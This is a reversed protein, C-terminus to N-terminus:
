LHTCNDVLIDNNAGTFSIDVHNACTAGLGGTVGGPNTGSCDRPGSFVNGMATLAAMASNPLPMCIGGGTNQGSGLAAQLTNKGPSAATGLDIKSVDVNLGNGIVAVGAGNNSLLYSSRLRVASGGTIVLGRGGENAWAVVGTLTNLPPNAGTQSIVIGNQQNGNAVVTGAGSTGPTGQISISSSGDVMIGSATNSNFAVQNPTPLIISVTGGVGNPSAVHLGNSRQTPLGNGTSSVGSGITLTGGAVLIGDGLFNVVDVDQLTTTATSGALVVVGNQATQSGGDLALNKLGSAAADLRFASTNAPPAVTVFNQGVITVNAPIIIPFTEGTKVVVAGALTTGGVVTITTGVVAGAGIFQLARTITKFSCSATPTGSGTAGTDSGNVPDVLYNKGTVTQCTSCTHGSSCVASNGLMNKCLMDGAVGPCCGGAGCAGGCCVDAPNAVCATNDTTTCAGAVCAGANAGATTCIFTSGYSAMCQADSACKACVNAKSLGCISGTPTTCDSNSRCNGPVCAGGLCIFPNTGATGYAATCHADDTVATCAACVATKCLGNAAGLNCATNDAGCAPPVDTTADNGTDAVTDAGGEATDAATDGTEATKDTATDGAETTSDPATDAVEAPVDAPVDTAVETAVDASGGGAGDAAVDTIPKDVPSDTPKGDASNKDASGDDSTSSGGCGGFGLAALMCVTLVKRM